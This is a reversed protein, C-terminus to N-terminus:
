ERLRANGVDEDVRWEILERGDQMMVRQGFLDVEPELEVVL